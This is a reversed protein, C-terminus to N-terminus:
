RISSDHDAGLVAMARGIVDDLSEAAEGEAWDFLAATLAGNVAGSAVRAELRGVGTRALAEVIVDETRLNNEWM